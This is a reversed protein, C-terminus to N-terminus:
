CLAYAPVCCDHISRHQSPRCTIRACPFCHYLARLVHWNALHWFTLDHDIQVRSRMRCSYLSPLPVLFVFACSRKAPQPLDIRYPVCQCTHVFFCTRSTDFSFLNRLASTVKQKAHKTYTKTLRSLQKGQTRANRAIALAHFFARICSDAM